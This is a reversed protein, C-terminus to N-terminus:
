TPTFAAGAGSSPPAGAPLRWLVTWDPAGTAAPNGDFICITTGGLLGGIQANWM